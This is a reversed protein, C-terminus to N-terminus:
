EEICDVISETKNEEEETYDKDSLREEDVCNRYYDSTSTHRRM